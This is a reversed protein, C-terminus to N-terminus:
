KKQLEQIVSKILNIKKLKKQIEKQITLCDEKKKKLKNSDIQLNSKNIINIQEIIEKLTKFDFIQENIKLNSNFEKINYLKKCYEIIEEKILNENIGDVFEYDKLIKSENINDSNNNNPLYKDQYAKEIINKKTQIQQKKEFLILKKKYSTELTELCIKESKSLDNKKIKEISQLIDNIINNLKKKNEEFNTNNKNKIDEIQKIEKDKEELYQILQKIDSM